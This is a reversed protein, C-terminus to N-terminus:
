LFSLVRDKELLFKWAPILKFRVVRGNKTMLQREGSHDKTIVLARDTKFKECFRLVNKLDKQDIHERYKVELPILQGQSELVFDVEYKQPTRWFFKSDTALAMLNEILRDEEVQPNLFAFFSTSSLYLRKMKKESTLMNRSFNYIKKLLFSEEIYFVYNSLTVRSIGLERSLSDYNTILGPHSAVIKLLRMLLDEYEIPFIKPIDQFVVKEMIIQVYRGTREESENVVEVFQRKPYASFEKKLSDEFLNPKELLDNKERFVLFEEFSLPNLTFEYLRGALSEQSRKKIFLSSSGSIFFKLNNYFDFFYKIQNQWNELKQIEDLFLYVTGETRAIEKGLRSEYEQIIQEIKTQEEDFSFFLIHDREVKEVAILHDILQKLLTTKGTRRLGTLCIIQKSSLEQVLQDFLRRRKPFNYFFSSRWHFNYKEIM